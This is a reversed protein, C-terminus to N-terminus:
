FRTGLVKLIEEGMGWMFILVLRSSKRPKQNTRRETNLERYETRVM